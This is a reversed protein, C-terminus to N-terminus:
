PICFRKLKPDDMGNVMIWGYFGPGIINYLNYIYLNNGSKLIFREWMGIGETLVTYFLFIPLLAWGFRYLSKLYFLSVLFALVLFLTGINQLM